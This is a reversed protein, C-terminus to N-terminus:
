KKSKRWFNDIQQKKSTTKMKEVQEAVKKEIEEDNELDLISQKNPKL